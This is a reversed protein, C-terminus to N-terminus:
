ETEDESDAVVRALDDESGSFATDPQKSVPTPRQRLTKKTMPPPTLQGPHMTEEDNKMNRQSRRLGARPKDNALRAALRTRKRPVFVDEEEMDSKYSDSVNNEEDSDASSVDRDNYDRDEEDGSSLDSLYKADEQGVTKKNESSIDSRGNAGKDGHHSARKEKILAEHSDQEKGKQVARIAEEISRDYDSFNYNVPRRERLSRTQFTNAFALVKDKKEQRKLLREKKKQFKEVAPVIETKLHEAIASEAHGKRSLKESIELFEDLNTAVTEWYINTVPKTLRGGKGKWNQKFDVTVDETYLRHGITSDGDYWYITGSSGSGLKDKRFNSIHMGKKMEDNVYWVVDNQESRVECLAKLILLRKIPDQQKYTEVEKGPNSRFPNAGEAVWSWWDTLKKATVIIWGDEDHLHKNVPPIGKLLAIHIRALDRNNSALAMEIEDASLRLDAEIVPEFVRLFNLVSALEWRRRLLVVPDESAAAAAEDPAAASPPKAPSSAKARKAPSAM